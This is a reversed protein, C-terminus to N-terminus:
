RKLDHCDSKGLDIGREEKIQMRLRKQAVSKM